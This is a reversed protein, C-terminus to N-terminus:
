GKGSKQFPSLKRFKSIVSSICLNPTFKTNLFTGSYLIFPLFFVLFFIHLFHLLFPNIDKYCVSNICISSFFILTGANQKSM